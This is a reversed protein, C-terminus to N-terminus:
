CKFMKDWAMDIKIGDKFVNKVFEKIDTEEKEEIKVVNKLFDYIPIFNNEVGIFQALQNNDFKSIDLENITKLKTAIKAEGENNEPLNKEFKEFYDIIKKNEELAAKVGSTKNIKVKRATMRIKAGLISNYNSYTMKYGNIFDEKTYKLQDQEYIGVDEITPNKDTFIINKGENLKVENSGEKWPEIRFKVKESKLIFDSEFYDDKFLEYIKQSVKENSDSSNVETLVRTKSIDTNLLLISSIARTDAEGSGLNYRIAGASISYDTVDLYNKLLEAQYRTKDQDLVKGDSLILIRYKKKSSNHNLISKICKYVNAMQTEGKGKIYTINKLQGVTMEYLKVYNQFTILHILDNDGYNLLNLSKPIIKSVLNHLYSSMSSSVDLIMIFEAQEPITDKDLKTLIIEIIYDNMGNNQHVILNYNKPGKFELKKIKNENINNYNYNNSYHNIININSSNNSSNCGINRNISINNSNNNRNKNISNNSHGLIYPENESNYDKIQNNQNRNTTESNILNIGM